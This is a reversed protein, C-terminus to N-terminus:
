GAAYFRVQRDKCACTRRSSVDDVSRVHHARVRRNHLAISLAPVAEAQRVQANRHQARKRTIARLARVRRLQHLTPKTPIRPTTQPPPHHLPPPIPTSNPPTDNLLRPATSHHSPLFLPTFHHNHALVPILSPSLPERFLKPHDPIVHNHVFHYHSSM